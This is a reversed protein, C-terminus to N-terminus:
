SFYFIYGTTAIYEETLLVSCLIVRIFLFKLTFYIYSLYLSFGIFFLYLEFINKCATYVQWQKFYIAYFIGHEQWIYVKLVLLYINKDSCLMKLCLKTQM